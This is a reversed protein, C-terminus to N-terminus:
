KSNCGGESATAAGKAQMGCQFIVMIHTHAQIHTHRHIHKYTYLYVYMSLFMHM